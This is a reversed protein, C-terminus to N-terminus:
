LGSIKSMSSKCNDLAVVAKRILDDKVQLNVELSEIRSELIYQNAYRSQLVSDIYKYGRIDASHDLKKLLCRIHIGDGQKNEEFNRISAGNIYDIVSVSYTSIKIIEFLKSHSLMASLTATTYDFLHGIGKKKEKVNHAVLHAPENPVELFVYGNNSLIQHLKYLYEIPNNIHEFVHSMTIMDFKNLNVSDFLLNNDIIKIKSNKAMYEIMAQDSEVAFINGNIEFKELLKGASAGIDVLNKLGRDTRINSCIFKYQSEARLSMFNLYSETIAEKRIQRYKKHYYRDLYAGSVFDNQILGCDICIYIDTDFDLNKGIFHTKDAFCLYCVHM